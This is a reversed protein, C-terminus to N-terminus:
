GGLYTVELRVTASRPKFCRRKRLRRVVEFRGTDPDRRYIARRVIGCFRGAAFTGLVPDYGYINATEVVSFLPGVPTGTASAAARANAAAAEAATPTATLRGARLARRISPSTQRAAEVPAQGIGVGTLERAGEDSAPGGVISYTTEVSIAELKSCRPSQPNRCAPRPEFPTSVEATRLDGVTVGLAGAIAEARRRADGVARATARDREGLPAFGAGSVTIGPGYDESPIQFPSFFQASAQAPFLAALVVAGVALRRM